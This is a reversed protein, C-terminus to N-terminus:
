LTYTFTSLEAEYFAIFILSFKQLSEHKRKLLISHLKRESGSARWNWSSVYEHKCLMIQQM